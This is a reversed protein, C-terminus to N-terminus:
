HELEKSVLGGHRSGRWRLLWRRRLSLHISLLTSGILRVGLFPVVPITIPVQLGLTILAVLTRWGIGMLTRLRIGRGLLLATLGLLVLTKM